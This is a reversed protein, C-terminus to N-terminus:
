LIFDTSTLTKLGTLEIQFDARGDGNTDGEVITKDNVTGTANVRVYHLEGAVKHFAAKGIFKFSQNGSIKANADITRLDIDDQGHAFDTIRDRSGATKGTESLANFDFDDLGTGGTLTDKGTGGTIVDNGAGGSLIDNHSLGYLADNGRMGHLINALTNGTLKDAGDGSIVNEIRTGAAIRFTAGDIRGAAGANLNIISSTSVAAADIWDIGGDIDALTGRTADLALMQAFEDTLHYVDKTSDPASGFLELKVSNLTGTNGAATDIVKLTWTGTSAEGHFADVGYIWKFGASADIGSDPGGRYLQVETGEASILFIRLSGYDGHTIDLTIDAHELTLPFSSVDFTVTYTDNDILSPSNPTYTDFFFHENATTQAAAKIVAFAEAMRVAGYPDVNGYGYDESFHLGGGNWNDAENFFWTHEENLGPGAGFASGTHFATMALINQVDRWGLGPNADLMLAAVASVMPTASSTGSAWDTYDSAVAQSAFLNGGATGPLDTTLIEPSSGEDGSPASILICAGYNSYSAVFGDERIAAVTMTHRSTSMGAGNADRNNNAAGNINITGLGDRGTESALRFETVLALSTNGSYLLSYAPVFYDLYAWSNNTIDFAPAPHLVPATSTYDIGILAASTISAGWAIGVTGVGNREAALIGAVATGHADGPTTGSPEVPVPSGDVILELSADYNSSLDEHGRAIGNDYVIVHVGAGSFENWVRELLGRGRGNGLTTFHWQQAYLPDTPVSM